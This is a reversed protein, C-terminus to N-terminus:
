NQYRVGRKTDRVFYKDVAYTLVDVMDDHVANPFTACQDVFKKNWGGEVIYVKESALFPEANEVRNWKGLAVVKNKIEQVNFGGNEFKALMSKLPKGSAKPEIYVVSKPSRYNEQAYTKFYKLLEYLEKRVGICNLIYLSNNPKHYYCTLLATEDNHSKDTFAGDIFYDTTVSNPNFPLENERVVNFWERLIKNGELASPRQQDLSAFGTPNIRRRKFYKEASHREEWLAEDIQRPDDVEEAMSLANENEKLASFCVVVWEKAEKEDYCPNEPNLLRGALDDEHWRTFLMLQKSDNHLRTMFVDQYWDWVNRRHTESNATARDKFPDDIIGIDVPTGTLSGGVGVAKLFGRHKVIEFITSNRLVGKKADTSVNAENLTTDPFIDKYLDTEIIQQVSRNFGSALDSSYSCLALKRKPNRGLAYAPFQRSSLESKGHQPPVFIMLKKIDGSELRDLYKCITEHFWQTDYDEKVYEVFDVFSEKADLKRLDNLIKIEEEIQENTM